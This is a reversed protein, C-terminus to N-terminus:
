FINPDFIVDEPPFGLEDVLIHYCRRCIDVKRDASDAQGQEDFAMVIVAAGYRRVLHAKERFSAEGDKLSISNVIGRGQLCRLGEELVEWRSSDVVVPIRSIGPESAVLNLYRRMAAVSDLLGEDMNVDLLQAGSEVQQRAVELATEYDDAEILRRFKISGTVNTREGVNAFLADGGLTLPELGSLRTRAPRDPIVRPALGEVAAVLARVHAPTTGCCGGVLNVFG